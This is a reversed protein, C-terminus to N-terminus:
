SFVVFNFIHYKAELTGVNPLHICTCMFDHFVIFYKSTNNKSKHVYQLFKAVPDVKM